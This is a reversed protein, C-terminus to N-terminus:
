FLSHLPHIYASNVFTSGRMTRYLPPPKRHPAILPDAYTPNYGTNVPFKEKVKLWAAEVDLSTTLTEPLGLGKLEESDVKKGDDGPLVYGDRRATTEFSFKDPYGLAVMGRHLILDVDIYRKPESGVHSSTDFLSSDGRWIDKSVQRVDEYTDCTDRVYKLIRITKNHPTKIFDPLADRVLQSTNWNYEMFPRNGTVAVNFIREPSSFIM